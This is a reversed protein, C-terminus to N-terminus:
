HHREYKVWYIILLGVGICIASDAVNFAPWHYQNVYVDVFDTVKGYFARDIFNGLAGGMIFALAAQQLSHKSKFFWHLFFATALLSIGALLWREWGPDITSLFGFAAGTNYTLTFNVFPMFEVPRHLHLHEIAFIKTYYDLIVIVPVLVLWLKRM